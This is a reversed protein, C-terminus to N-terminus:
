VVECWRVKGAVEVEVEVGVRHLHRRHPVMRARHGGQHSPQAGFADAGHVADVLV